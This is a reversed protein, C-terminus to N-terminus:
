RIKYAAHWQSVGRTPRTADRQNEGRTGNTEGRPHVGGHVRRAVRLATLRGRTRRRRARAPTSTRAAHPEEATCRGSEVWGDTEGDGLGEGEGVRGAERVRAKPPSTWKM